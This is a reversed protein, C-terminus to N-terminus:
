CGFEKILRVAYVIYNLLSYNNNSFLSAHLQNMVLQLLGSNNARVEKRIHRKWQMFNRLKTAHVKSKWHGCLFIDAYKFNASWQIVKNLSCVVPVLFYKRFQLYGTCFYLKKISCLNHHKDVLILKTKLMSM